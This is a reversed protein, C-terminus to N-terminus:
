DHRAGHLVDVAHPLMEAIADLSEVAGRPSGPLNAILTQGRVGVMGRSLVARPTSRRGVERMVEPFGPVLKSCVALTAEPTVDRPGIGTGGTTLILDVSGSDAIEILRAEIAGQEDAASSASIVRWGLKECRERLAPGSADARTGQFVSDSVTLIAVRMLFSVRRAPDPM